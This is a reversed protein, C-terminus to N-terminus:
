SAIWPTIGIVFMIILLIDLFSLISALGSISTNPASLNAFAFDVSDYIMAFPYVLWNLSLGFIGYNKGKINSFYTTTTTTASSNSSISTTNVTSTSTANINPQTYTITTTTGQSSIVAIAINLCIFFVLPIVTLEIKTVM